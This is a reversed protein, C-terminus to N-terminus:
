TLALNLERIKLKLPTLFNYTIGDDCENRDHEFYWDESRILRPNGDAAGISRKTNSFYEYSQVAYHNIRFLDCSAQLNQMWGMNIPRLQEDFTGGDTDFLHSSHLRITQRGKVVSKVHRNVMFDPGSHRPYNELILGSPEDIHGNSGYCVWYVALASLPFPEFRALAEGFYRYRPSFLFEDGDIFAMWDVVSTYHEIAHQYAVLQPLEDMELPHVTVPYHQALRLLTETMGDTCKHTYIYFRNFGALMHFALWEVIWPNRNRQISTIALIM